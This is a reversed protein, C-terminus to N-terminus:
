KLQFFVLNEDYSSDSNFAEESEEEEEYEDNAQNLIQSSLQRCSLNECVELTACRTATVNM